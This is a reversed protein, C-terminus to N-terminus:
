RELDEPTAHWEQGKPIWGTGACCKCLVLGLTEQYENRATADKIAQEDEKRARYEGQRCRNDCYKKPRGQFRWVDFKNSCYRYECNKRSM